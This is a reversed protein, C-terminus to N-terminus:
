RVGVIAGIRFSATGINKHHVRNDMTNALAQPSLRASWLSLASVEKANVEAPLGPNVAVALAVTVPEVTATVTGLPVFTM